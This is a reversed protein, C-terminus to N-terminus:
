MWQERWAQFMLVDWLLYQWNRKGSLHEAWVERITKAALYGEQKIRRENLLNEAWERLPGRLWSGVPIAFGMKPREVLERPVYRDLVKRLAWKSKGKRIKLSLPLCAAFEVVRHDLIPVRAELSVGMSARDVKTLIDDPLYTVLDLFMMRSSFEPIDAALTEDSLITKPESAGRIIQDPQKWHSVIRRYLAQPSELILVEALKHIRHGVSGPQKRSRKLIGLFRDYTQIDCSTLLRALTRRSSVPLRRMWKWVERALFYRDYGGFLEDGGDGSLSVTVSRRTLESVLFTPIQSSDSFPEDYLTPLKRIVAQAEEPTVYLETHDTGLHAAVKKAEKAENYEDECFGITFTKVPRSSQAQMLAVVVSSDIGGSLFAGLPVDSIMRLRVSDKLRKELEDVAEKESGKFPNLAGQTWIDRASWFAVPTPREATPEASARLSLICGPPLKFIGKYISHPQPIYDHRAQLALADRNIEPVFDPHARLAKLESGFLFTKKAWGYYLPKIGLRDRVLHLVRERRDWLAFAFMGVFKKVAPELGWESFAALMVETDSHGRFKCGKIELDARLEASNYVEGNFVIVYRGSASQMPQHGAPSLDIISLRRFGLAVGSESDVCVGSDDPGRHVLRDAM